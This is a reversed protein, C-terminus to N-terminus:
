NSTTKQRAKTAKSENRKKINRNKHCQITRIKVKRTLQSLNSSNPTPMNILQRVPQTKYTCQETTPPSTSLSQPLLWTASKASPPLQHLQSPVSLQWYPESWAPATSPAGPPIRTSAM